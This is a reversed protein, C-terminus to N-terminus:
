PTKGAGLAALQSRLEEIEERQRDLLRLLGSMGWSVMAAGGVTILMAIWYYPEGMHAFTHDGGLNVMFIPGFTLLPALWVGARKRQRKRAEDALVRAAEFQAM